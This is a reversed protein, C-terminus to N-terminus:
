QQNEVHSGGKRVLVSASNEGCSVSIEYLGNNETVNMDDASVILEGGDAAAESGAPLNREYIGNESSYIVCLINGNELVIGKGGDMIKCSDSARIKNSVYKIAASSGYTAEYGGTIRSYIGAGAGIIVIMCIAFILFLLLSAATGLVRSTGKYRVGKM